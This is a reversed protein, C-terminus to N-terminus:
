LVTVGYVARKDGQQVQLQYSGPPLGKVEFQYRGSAGSVQARRCVRGNSDSLMLEFDGTIAQWQLTLRERVPNPLIRMQLAQELANVASLCATSIQLNQDQDLMLEQVSETGDACQVTVKYRGKFGRVTTVGQANTNAMTDTWWQNFLQDVFATGSPKLNWNIDYVPANGLWHAGDWFGWMLFGKMSPHAFTITLIDRMYRAQVDAPVLINMDYETVKAELGYATWFEDYIAKVRPIGTIPSSFHGQFGIGDLPAGAAILEDIRSRWLAIGNNPLDGQEIAVYDNLYLKVDPALQRVQAFIEPYLERGTTYGPTGAFHNAYDNNTTIENLVDWDIVSKGVGQYNIIDSIHNNVRNKIYAPTQNANIDSPSYTWGPWALNHGRVSIGRENLWEFDDAIEEHSSFWTGEWGPWKLDNEFVVESFGHGQGDLNTLKEEYVPNYQGGGNFYSSVVATGFKFAHQQMEVKVNAAPLPQGNSDTVQVTLNAKRLQEISAAAEARWPADPEMGTYSDNNLAVPLQNLIVSNTYNLWMAGGIEITQNLIGLHLGLVLAGPAYNIDAEMPIMYRKWESSLKVSAFAEKNYTSSNEMFINVQADPTPSRMWLIALCKHGAGISTQNAYGHGSSWPDTGQPVELRRATGFDTGTAAIDTSTAGYNYSIAWTGAETNPLVWAPSAPLSFTTSLEAVTGAQYIDQASLTGIALFAMLFRFLIM